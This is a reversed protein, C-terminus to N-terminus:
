TSASDSEEPLLPSQLVAAAADLARILAAVEQAATTKWDHCDNIEDAWLRNLVPDPPPPTTMKRGCLFAERLKPFHHNYSNSSNAWHGYTPLLFYNTFGLVLHKFIDSKRSLFARDLSMLKDNIIRHFLLKTKLQHIPQEHDHEHENSIIVSRNHMETRFNDGIVELRMVAAQLYAISLNAKHFDEHFHGMFSGFAKQIEEVYDEVNMPLLSSDALLLILGSIIRRKIAKISHM